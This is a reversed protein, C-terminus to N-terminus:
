SIKRVKFKVLYIPKGSLESLVIFHDKQAQRLHDSGGKVECFFWDSYDPAYVLLDPAQVKNIRQQYEM